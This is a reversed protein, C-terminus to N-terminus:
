SLMNVSGLVKMQPISDLPLIDTYEVEEYMDESWRTSNHSADQNLSEEMEAISNHYEEEAERTEPEKSYTIDILVLEEPEDTNMLTNSITSNNIVSDDKSASNHKAKEGGQDTDPADDNTSSTAETNEGSDDSTRAYDDDDEDLEVIKPEEGPSLLKKAASIRLKLVSQVFKLLEAINLNQLIMKWVEAPVHGQPLNRTNSAEFFTELVDQLKINTEEMKTKFSPCLMNQIAQEVNYSTNSTDKERADKLAKKINDPELNHLLQSLYKPSVKNSNITRAEALDKRVEHGIQSEEEDYEQEGELYLTVPVTAAKIADALDIAGQDGINNYELNLTIPEKAVKISDALAIAGQTTIDNYQLNLTVPQTAITISDALAKAGEPGIHNAYLNLNVPVTASKISDALAKAGEPGIKNFALDLTVPVNATKIQEIAELLRKIQEIAELLRQDM